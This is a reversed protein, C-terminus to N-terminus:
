LKRAQSVPVGDVGALAIRAVEADAADQVVIFWAGLESAPHNRALEYAIQRAHQIAEAIGPLEEGDEDPIEVRRDRLHFFFRPM